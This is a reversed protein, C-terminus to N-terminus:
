YHEVLEVGRTSVANDVSQRQLKVEKEGWGGSSEGLMEGEKDMQWRGTPGVTFLLEAM